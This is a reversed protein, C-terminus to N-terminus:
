LADPGVVFGAQRQREVQFAEMGHADIYAAVADHDTPDIFGDQGPKPPTTDKPKSEAM